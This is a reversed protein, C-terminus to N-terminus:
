NGARRHEQLQRFADVADVGDAVVPPPAASGNAPQQASAVVKAAAAVARIAAAAAHQAALEPTPAAKQPQSPPRLDGAAPTRLLSKFRAEGLEARLASHFLPETAAAADLPM